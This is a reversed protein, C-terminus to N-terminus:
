FSIAFSFSCLYFMSQLLKTKYSGFVWFDLGFIIFRTCFDLKFKVWILVLDNARDM